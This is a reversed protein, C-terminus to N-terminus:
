IYAPCLEGCDLWSVNEQMNPPTVANVIQSSGQLFLVFCYCFCSVRHCQPLLSGRPHTSLSLFWLLGTSRLTRQTRVRVHELGEQACSNAQAEALDGREQPQQRSGSSAMPHVELPVKLFHEAPHEVPHTHPQARLLQRQKPPACM